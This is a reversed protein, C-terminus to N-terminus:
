GGEFARLDEYSAVIRMHVLYDLFGAYEGAEDTRHRYLWYKDDALIFILNPRTKVAGAQSAPVGACFGAMEFAVWASVVVVLYSLGRRISAQPNRM